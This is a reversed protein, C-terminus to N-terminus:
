GRLEFVLVGDIAFMYEVECDWVALDGVQLDEAWGEYFVLQDQLEESWVQVKLKGEVNVSDFCDILKM